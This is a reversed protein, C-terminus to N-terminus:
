KDASGKLFEELDAETIRYKQGAKLAKLKGKDIWRYVTNYHVRLRHSVEEVTLLVDNMM